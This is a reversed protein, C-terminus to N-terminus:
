ELPAKDDANLREGSSYTRSLEFRLDGKRLLIKATIGSKLLLQRRQETDSSEWEDRYIRDTPVDEWGSERTPLTELEAIRSDLARLQSTLRSRMTDSTITGLLSTLEDVAQVAEDLATQHNEAPRYVREVVYEDGLDELFKQEVLEEVIEARISNTPHERMQGGLCQYYRYTKGRLKSHNQRLHLARGCIWCLAIGLMPSAGTSRNTVKLSTSELVAQVRDYTEQTVLPPGKLVPSGEDDRVTVGGHTSHGLLSKSQLLQRVGTNSWKGNRTPKGSRERLYDAPSLEGSENLDRAISETSRGALVKEVIEGLVSVAHEDHALEWGGDSREVPKYGYVPKGGAWRGLERLKRQSGRTRERIAELEGEAVGAIVSAVLRGVWHSLDINDSVCVLVKDHDQCLGFLRHLPVARRALRDLKWSCLVDWEHLRDTLWPGLAPTDFPDVSGSVDLDEAWGIVTADNQKAWAEIIERQREISTSEESSRSIRVRGLVRTGSMVLLKRHSGLKRLRHIDLERNEHITM